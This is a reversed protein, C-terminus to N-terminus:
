RKVELKIGKYTRRDRPAPMDREQIQVFERYEEVTLYLEKPLPYDMQKHLLIVEDLDNVVTM